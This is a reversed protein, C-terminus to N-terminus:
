LHLDLKAPGMWYYEPTMGPTFENSKLVIGELTANIVHRGHSGNEEVDHIRAIGFATPHRGTRALYAELNRDQDEGLSFLTRNSRVNVYLTYPGATRVVHHLDGGFSPFVGVRAALSNSLAREDCSDITDICLSFQKTRMQYPDIRVGIMFAVLNTRPYKKVEAGFEKFWYDMRGQKLFADREGNISQAQRVAYWANSDAAVSAFVDEENMAEAGPQTHYIKVLDGDGKLLSFPEDRWAQKPDIVACSALAAGTAVALFLRLAQRIRGAIISLSRQPASSAGCLDRGSAARTSPATICADRWNNTRRERRTAERGRGVMPGSMTLQQHVHEKM